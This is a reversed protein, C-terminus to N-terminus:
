QPPSSVSIANKSDTGPAEPWNDIRLQDIPGCKVVDGQRKLFRATTDLASCHPRDNVYTNLRVNQGVNKKTMRLKYTPGPQLGVPNNCQGFLGSYEKSVGSEIQFGHKGKNIGIEGKYGSADCGEHHSSGGV